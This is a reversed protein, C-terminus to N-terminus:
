RFKVEMTKLITKIIRTWNGDEETFIMERTSANAAKRLLFGVNLAKLFEEYNQQSTQKYNGLINYAIKLIFVLMKTQHSM